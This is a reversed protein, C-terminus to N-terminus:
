SFENRSEAIFFSLTLTFPYKAHDNISLKSHALPYESFNPRCWTFKESGALGRIGLFDASQYVFRIFVLPHSGSGGVVGWCCFLVVLALLRTVACLVIISASIRIMEYRQYHSVAKRIVECTKVAYQIKNYNNYIYSRLGIKPRKM